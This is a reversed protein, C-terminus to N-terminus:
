LAKTVQLFWCSDLQQAQAHMCAHLQACGVELIFLSLRESSDEVCRFAYGSLLVALHFELTSLAAQKISTHMLLSVVAICSAQLPLKWQLMSQTRHLGPGM